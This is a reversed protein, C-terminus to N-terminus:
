SVGSLRSSRKYRIINTIPFYPLRTSFSFELKSLLIYTFVSLFYITRSVELNIRAIDVAIIETAQEHTLSDALACHLHPKHNEHCLTAYLHMM